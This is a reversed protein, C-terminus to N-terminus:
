FARRLYEVLRDFVQIKSDNQLIMRAVTVRLDHMRKQVVRNKSYDIYLNLLHPRRVEVIVVYNDHMTAVNMKVSNFLVEYSAFMYWLSHRLVVYNPTAKVKIHYTMDSM